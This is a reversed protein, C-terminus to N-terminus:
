SVARIKMAAVPLLIVLQGTGAECGYTAQTVAVRVGSASLAAETASRCSECARPPFSTTGAFLPAPTYARHADDPQADFANCLTEALWSVAAARASGASM